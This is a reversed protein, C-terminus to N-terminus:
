QIYKDYQNTHRENKEIEIHNERLREDKKRKRDKKSKRDRM